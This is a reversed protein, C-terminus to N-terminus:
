VAGQLIQADTIKKSKKQLYVVDGRELFVEPLDESLIQLLDKKNAGTEESLFTALKSASLSFCALFRPDETAVSYKESVHRLVELLHSNSVSFGGSRKRLSFGPPVEEGHEFVAATNYRKIDAAWNEMLKAVVQAKARDLPTALKGAEFESPLPLTGMGQFVTLATGLLAPCQGKLACFNCANEDCTPQAFPNERRRIVSLIRDVMKPVDERDYMARSDFGQRPAVLVGQIVRLEPHLQFLGVVYAQLQLNYEAPSVPSIGMKWDLLTARKGDKSILALDATGRTIKDGETDYIQLRIEKHEVHGEGIEELLERKIKLCKEIQAEQESTELLRRDGTELVNHMMTGEEAATNDKFEQKEYKACAEFLELASPSYKHHTEM